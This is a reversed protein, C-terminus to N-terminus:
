VEGRLSNTFNTRKTIETKAPISNPRGVKRASPERGVRSGPPKRTKRRGAPGQNWVNLISRGIARCAARSAAFAGQELPQPGRERDRPTWPWGVHGATRGGMHAGNPEAVKLAADVHEDRSRQEGALLQGESTELKPRHSRRCSPGRAQLRTPGARPPGALPGLQLPTPVWPKAPDTDSIM